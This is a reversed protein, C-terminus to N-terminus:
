EETESYLDDARTVPISANSMWEEVANRFGPTFAGRREAWYSQFGPTQYYSRYFSMSAEWYEPDLEGHLYSQHALEGTRLLQYFWAYAAFREAPLLEEENSIARLIIDALERDMMPAKALDQTNILVTTANSSRTANSNQRIQTALYVLTIVVAIAGVIEAIAAWEELSM